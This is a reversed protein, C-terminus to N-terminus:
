ESLDMRDMRLLKVQTNGAAGRLCGALFAFAASNMRQHHLMVGIRGTRAAQEFEAMLADLGAVPDVESRTHLDVNIAIDPLEASLPVKKMEGVSRSVARYGLEVLADGTQADFRNWPPTFVPSFAEGMIAELRLRGKALDTKKDRSDRDSGFESNKGSLQHNVHRWGHQHWCWVDETGAWTRLIDWRAPTLWAPTVAMHLPVGFSGFMEMMQRCKEGPVGIDDARFFCETESSLSSFFDELCAVAHELDSRSAHWLPSVHTKVIM